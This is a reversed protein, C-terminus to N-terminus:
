RKSEESGELACVILIEDIRSFEERRRQELSPLKFLLTCGGRLDGGCEFLGCEHGARAWELRPGPELAGADSACLVAIAALASM